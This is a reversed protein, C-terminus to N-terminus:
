PAPCETVCSNVRRSPLPRRALLEAYHRQYNAVMHGLDFRSEALHRGADALCRARAPDGLLEDLAATLGDLDGSDFLLGTRGHEMIQPLGGVRSAIV